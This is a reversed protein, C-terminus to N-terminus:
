KFYKLDTQMFTWEPTHLTNGFDLEYWPSLHHNGPKKLIHIDQAPMYSQAIMFVKKGDVPNVAMDIVIAAHGPFGGQIFVDGIQMDRIRVRKSMERELSHTGAYIFVTTLYKRFNIYSNNDEAKKIWKVKNGNIEPRYGTAWKSYSATDGSTFNFRISNGNNQSFLYEARLRIVADACQQLDRTGTDIDIVAYHAKQNLKKKGNHLYVKTGAEKLPLGRLWCAFTNTGVQVRKFGRPPSIKRSISSAASYHNLWPYNSEASCYANFLFIIGM